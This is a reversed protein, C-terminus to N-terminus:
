QIAHCHRNESKIHLVRVLERRFGDETLQWPHNVHAHYLTKKITIIIFIIFLYFIVVFVVSFGRNRIFRKRFSLRTITLKKRDSTQRHVIQSCTTPVCLYRRYVNNYYEDYVRSVRVSDFYEGGVLLLRM